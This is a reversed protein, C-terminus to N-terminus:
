EFIYKERNESKTVLQPTQSFGWTRKVRRTVVEEIERWTRSPNERLVECFNFTLAGHVEGYFYGESSYDDEACGAFLIHNQDPTNVFAKVGFKNVNTIEHGNSIAQVTKPCRLARIAKEKDSVSNSIPIVSIAKSITGSHCADCVFTLQADAPVRKFYSALIDDTFPDDWDLDHPCIIEDFGDIEDGNYDPVQSGHGSFTFILQDGPVVDTVLWDLGEMINKKTAEENLLLVTHMASFGYSESLRMYINDADNVCGELDCNLEPSYKNIGVILARKIPGRSPEDVIEIEEEIPEEVVVDEPESIKLTNIMQVIDDLEAKVADLRDLIEKINAM